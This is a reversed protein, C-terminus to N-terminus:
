RRLSWHIISVDSHPVISCDLAFNKFKSLSSLQIIEEHWLYTIFLISLFFFHLVPRIPFIFSLVSNPMPGLLLLQVVIRMQSTSFILLTTTLQMWSCHWWKRNTPYIHPNPVQDVKTRASRKRSLLLRLFWNYCFHKMTGDNNLCTWVVTSQRDLAPHCDFCLEALHWFCHLWSHFYCGWRCQSARKSRVDWVLLFFIISVVTRDLPYTPFQPTLAHITAKINLYKLSSHLHQTWSQKPDKPDKMENQFSTTYFSTTQKTQNIHYLKGM